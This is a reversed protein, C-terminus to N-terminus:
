TAKFSIDEPLNDQEAYPSIVEIIKRTKEDYIAGLVVTDGNPVGNPYEKRIQSMNGRVIAATVEFDDIAASRKRYKDADIGGTVLIIRGEKSFDAALEDKLKPMHTYALGYLKDVGTKDDQTLRANPTVEVFAINETNFTAGTPGVRVLQEPHERLDHNGPQINAMDRYVSNRVAMYALTRVTNETKDKKLDTPIWSFGEESHEQKEVIERTIDGILILNEAFKHSDKIDIKKDGDIGLKQKALAIDDVLKEDLLETMLIKKTSHLDEMNERLPKEPDLLGELYADRLGFVLGQSYSDHIMDYTTGSGGARKIDTEFAFFQSDLEDFYLDIGGFKMGEKEAESQPRGGAKIKAKAAGCGHMTDMSDIHPGLFEVVEPNYGKEKRKKLSASIKGAVIEDELVASEDTASYRTEPMGQPRKHLLGVLPDFIAVNLIRGDSCQVGGPRTQLFDRTTNIFRKYKDSSIQEAIIEGEEVYSRFRRDISTEIKRQAEQSTGYLFAIDKAKGILADIKTGKEKESTRSFLTEQSTNQGFEANRSM